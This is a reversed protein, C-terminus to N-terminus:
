LLLTIFHNSILVTLRLIATFPIKTINRADTLSWMDAIKKSCLEVEIMEDTEVPPSDTDSLDEEDSEFSANGM